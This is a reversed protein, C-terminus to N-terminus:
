FNNSNRPIRNDLRGKLEKYFIEKSEENFGEFELIGAYVVNSSSFHGYNEPLNVETALYTANIGEKSEYSFRSIGLPFQGVHNYNNEDLGKKGSFDNLYDLYEYFKEESFDESSYLFNGKQQHLKKNIRGFHERQSPMPNLSGDNETQVFDNDLLFEEITKKYPDRKGIYGESGLIVFSM